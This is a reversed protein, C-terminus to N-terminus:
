PNPHLPYKDPHKIFVLHSSYQKQTAMSHVLHSYKDIHTHKLEQTHVDKWAPIIQKIGYQSFWEHDHVQQQFQEAWNDQQCLINVVQQVRQKKRSKDKKEENGLQSQRLEEHKQVDPVVLCSQISSVKEDIEQAIEGVRAVDLSIKQNLMYDVRQMQHSKRNLRDVIVLGKQTFYENLEEEMRGLRQEDQGFLVQEVIEESTLAKIQKEMNVRIVEERYAVQHEISSMLQDQLENM